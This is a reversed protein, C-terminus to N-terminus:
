PTKFQTKRLYEALLKDLQQSTELVDKSLLNGGSLEIVKQLQSRLNEIEKLLGINQKM